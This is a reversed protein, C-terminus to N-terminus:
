AKRMATWSHVSRMGSSVPDSDDPRAEGNPGNRDNVGLFLGTGLVSFTVGALLVTQSPIYTDAPNESM